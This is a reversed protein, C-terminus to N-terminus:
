DQRADVNRVRVAAEEVPALVGVPKSSPEADILRCNDHFGLEVDGVLQDFQLMASSM